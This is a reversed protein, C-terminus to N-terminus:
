DRRGCCDRYEELAKTWMEKMVYAHGTLQPVRRVPPVVQRLSALQALAEDDYRADSLASALGASEEVSLPDM